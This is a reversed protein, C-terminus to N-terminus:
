PAFRVLLAGVPGLRSGLVQGTALGFQILKVTFEMGYKLPNTCFFHAFHRM